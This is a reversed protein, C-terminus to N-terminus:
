NHEAPESKLNKRIQEIDSESFGLATHLYDSAWNSRSQNRAYTAKADRLFQMMYEEKINSFGRMGPTEPTWDPKWKKIFATLYAKQPEIGIRSLAYGSAISEDSVGALAQILAALTGTRDKGATCNFLIADHPRDLLHQFVTRFSSKFIRLVELYNRSFGRAGGNWSDPSESDLEAFNRIDVEAPPTDSPCWLVEIDDNKENISDPFPFAGKEWASRLDFVTRVRLQKVLVERGEPLLGSLTGSRYILGPRIAQFGGVDRLNFAGPVVVFPTKAFAAELDGPPITTEIPTKILARLLDDDDDLRSGNPEVLPTM